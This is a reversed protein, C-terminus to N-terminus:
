KNARRATPEAVRLATPPAAPPYVLAAPAGAKWEGLRETLYAHFEPRKRAVGPFSDLIHEFDDATLGYAEAVARNAAWSAPWLERAETIHRIGREWALLTSVRPLRNVVDAPPVPMPRMYTMAVTSGSSRMRLVWDFAFSNLVVAAADLSVSGSVIGATTEGGCSMAPLVTAISTRENTNSAIRRYVLLEGPRPRKGYKTQAQQISLWWRVPKIGVLFQDVHKGEFVPWFGRESMLGITEGFDDPEKGLVLAPSYLRKTAPDTCLDKDEASNFICEHARWSVFTAGWSGPGVGGLTPRGRHMKGVIGHDRPSRYELFAITEPSLREIEGRTMRVVWPKPGVADLEALDHRVFAADFADASEGKRFVLSVFKYRSDIPFIKKRNEFGYFREIRAENLLFRRIGVAGDGNYLVSPVVMGVAGGRAVLRAARDVFYKSVDEHAAQSQGRSLPFDGGQRLVHAVTTTRERYQRFEGQLEPRVAHLERIRRDLENGSFARILVDYRGYFELKTPLVKDWPPNGLLADFGSRETGLFVEPFELEWHFFREGERIAEFESWWARSGAFASLAAPDEALGSLTAWERWIAPLFASVSRLDFLLHAGALQADALRRQHEKFVQEEISEAEVAGEDAARDILRRAEGAELVMRRLVSSFLDDQAIGAGRVMSPLPPRGVGDLWTGLLSNGCRVHHAFYTLPRDGALSEIWLAVRALGVATPNLDVGFLCREAIRRKCWARAESNAVRAQEDAARWDDDWGQGTTSRFHQPGSRGHAEVYARHLERGLFRMAEVLFHASGCAPDLIRLSEIEQVSRGEALPGLAHRVLDKVLAIHTYFSGSGKRASGPVFYFAGPELRRLLRAAAGRAVGKDGGLGDDGAEEEGATAGGGETDDADEAVSDDSEDDDDAEDAPRDPHLSEAATGEVIAYDGSVVLTKERCLRVAEAPSLAFTRGQVRLELTPERAVRPEYELLGEYVAGLSEIDLERFSVRERGVGRRAATTTLDLILRAVTRDPLRAENLLRGEATNANFFDGGRPPIHEWPTIQPLGEDYIRFLARLRAWLGTSNEAWNRHPDRLLDDVLGHASYSTRYIAHEDLRPDRAEAYLIFLIRYLATLAADRYRRLEADTLATLDALRGRDRADALFGAVLSEAATFVARKLDESVRAAHERSQLEVKAIPRVGDPGPQFESGRCLRYFAAFSERDDAGALGDLDVELYAGRAGDGPARVLRLREGTVILGHSLGAGALVQEVHRSPGSHGRGVDLDEDWAGCYAAALPPAGAAEAEASDFLLHVRGTEAGLHFGLVDRLLPRIFRERCAPADTARGESREHIRRFRLYALDTERTSVHRRRGRGDGRGFVSGLYYDSFFGRVNRLHRYTM